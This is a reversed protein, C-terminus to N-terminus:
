RNIISELTELVSKDQNQIIERDQASNGLIQIVKKIESKLDVCHVPDLSSNILYRRKDEPSIAQDPNTIDTAGYYIEADGNEEHIEDLIESWLNVYEPLLSMASCEHIGLFSTLGLAIVKRDKPHGIRDFRSLWFKLIYERKEGLLQWLILPDSFAMRGFITLIKRQSSSTSAETDLLHDILLPFLGSTQIASAYEKLPQLTAILEFLDLMSMLPEHAMYPLYSTFISIMWSFVKSHNSILDPELLLYSTLINLEIALNETSQEIITLLIVVLGHLDATQEPANEVLAQWLPLADEFLYASLPSKSDVSAKLIPIAIYYCHVSSEHSATVINTLVQLIVGKILQNDTEEDWLPPILALINDLYPKIQSQVQEVIISVVQLLSIKSEISHVENNLLQFINNFTPDIFPIFTDLQFNWDDVAYRLCTMAYLKVVLDNLPNSDDLFSMMLKYVTIRSESSCKFGIWESIVLSVGRRLIRYNSDQTDQCFPILLQSLLDDFSIMDQLVTAGYQLAQLSCDKIIVDSQNAANEIFSMVQQGIVDRFGIILDELLKAACPRLQYEWSLKGEQNYIEEPDSKWTELDAPSLRIYHNLLINTLSSLTESTYFAESVLKKARQSDHREEDTRSKSSTSSPKTVSRMTKKFLTLAQILVKTWVDTQLDDNDGIYLLLARSDVLKLYLQLVQLSGPMLIFSTAQNDYLQQYFKGYRLLFRGIMDSSETSYEELLGQFFVVGKEFFDRAFQSTHCNEYGQILLRCDVKLALYGVELKGLDMFRNALCDNILGFYINGVEQTLQPCQEQMMAKARGIKITSIEKIVQNLVQLINYMQALDMRVNYEIIKETIISFLNPWDRPFDLRAIRAITTSMQANLQKNPEVIGDFLHARLYAKEEISIANISTRRWRANVSNKFYIVALWRSQTNVSKDLYTQLLLSCFGPLSQWVELQSEGSTRLAADVQSGAAELARTLNELTLDM